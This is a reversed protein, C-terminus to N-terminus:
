DKPAVKSDEAISSGCINQEFLTPYSELLQALVDTMVLKRIYSSRNKHKFKRIYHDLMRLEDDSFYISVRHSKPDQKIDKKKKLASM